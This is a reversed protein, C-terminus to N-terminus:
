QIGSTVANIEQSVTKLEFLLLSLKAIEFMINIFLYM